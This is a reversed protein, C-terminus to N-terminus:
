GTIWLPRDGHSQVNRAHNCHHKEVDNNQRCSNPGGSFGSSHLPVAMSVPDFHHEESVSIDVHQNPSEGHGTLQQSHFEDKSLQCCLYFTMIDYKNSLLNM